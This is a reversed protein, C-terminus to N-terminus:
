QVIFAGNLSCTELNVICAACGLNASVLNAVILTAIGGRFSCYLTTLM